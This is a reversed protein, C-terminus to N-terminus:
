RIWLYFTHRNIGGKPVGNGATGAWGGGFCNCSTCAEGTGGYYSGVGAWGGSNCGCGFNSETAGKIGWSTDGPKLTSTRARCFRAAGPTPIQQNLLPDNSQFESLMITGNAARQGDAFIEEATRFSQYLNKANRPDCWNLRLHTYNGRSMSFRPGIFGAGTGQAVQEPGSTETFLSAIAGTAKDRPTGAPEFGVLTWGGGDLSMDCRVTFPARAPDPQITYIGSPASPKAQL